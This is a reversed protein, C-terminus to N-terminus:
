AVRKTAMRCSKDVRELVLDPAYNMIYRDTAKRAGRWHGYDDILLVGGLSLLPYLHVLEHMTSSYWDTDLRLLAIQDPATAPITEEVMGKVFHFLEGPYGTAYVNRKVEEVPALCWNEGRAEEWRKVAKKGDIGEPPPMGEFTDYLWIDREAGLEVLTLAMAMVSGGRWVGCEVFAGPIEKKVIHWVADVLAYVRPRTTMTIKRVAQYIRENIEEM